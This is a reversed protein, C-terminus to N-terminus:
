WFILGHDLVKVRDLCLPLGHDLASVRFMVAVTVSPFVTLRWFLDTSTISPCAITPIVTIYELTQYICIM